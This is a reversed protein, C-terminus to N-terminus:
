QWREGNLHQSEDLKMGQDESDGNSLYEHSQSDFVGEGSANAEVIEEINGLQTIGYGM